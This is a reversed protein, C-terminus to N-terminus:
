SVETPRVVAGAHKVGWFTVKVRTTERAELGDQGAVLESSFTAVSLEFM